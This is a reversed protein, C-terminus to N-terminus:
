RERSVSRSPQHHSRGRVRYLVSLLSIGAVLALWVRPEPLYLGQFNTAEISAYPNPTGAVAYPFGDLVGCGLNARPEPLSTTLNWEDMIPDFFEVDPCSVVGAEKLGGIVLIGDAVVAAAPADRGILMPSVTTWEGNDVPFCHVVDLFHNQGNYGGTVYIRDDIATAAAFVRAIPLPVGIEWTDTVPDYIEVDDRYDLWGRTGGLAWLKGQAVTVAAGAVATPKPAGTSWSDQGPDYIEVTNLMQYDATGGIVYIKGDIVGAALSARATPMPAVYTWSDSPADYAEASSLWQSEYIGGIAYMNQDVTVVVHYARPQNLHGKDMWTLDPYWVSDIRRPAESRFHQKGVEGLLEYGTRPNFHIPSNIKPDSRGTEFLLPGHHEQGQTLRTMFLSLIMMALFLEIWSKM